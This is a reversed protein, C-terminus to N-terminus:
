EMKLRMSYGANYIALMSIFSILFITWMHTIQIMPVFFRLIGEIWVAVRIMPLYFTQPGLGFINSMFRNMILSQFLILVISIIAFFNGLLISQKKSKVFDYSLFGVLFWLFCFGVSIVSIITGYWDLAYIARNMLYGILFPSFSFVLLGIKKIDLKWSLM